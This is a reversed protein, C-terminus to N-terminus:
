PSPPLPEKQPEVKTKGLQWESHSSDCLQLLATCKGRVDEPVAMTRMLVRYRCRLPALTVQVAMGEKGRGESFFTSTNLETKGKTFTRSPDESPM